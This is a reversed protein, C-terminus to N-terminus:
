SAAQVTLDGDIGITVPMVAHSSTSGSLGSSTAYASTAIFEINSAADGEPHFEFAGSSGAKLANITTVDGAEVLVNFTFTDDPAGVNRHTVAGSASSCKSVAEDVTSSWSYDTLCLFTTSGLTFSAKDGLFKVM